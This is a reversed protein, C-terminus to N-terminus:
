MNADHFLLAGPPISKLPEPSAHTLCVTPGDLAPKYVLPIMIQNLENGGTGRGIEYQAFFTKKKMM